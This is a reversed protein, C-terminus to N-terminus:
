ARSGSTSSRAPPRSCTAPYFTRLDATEDPWGLTAFPWLASSFWTDLVDPDREAPPHRVRPLARADDGAVIVHDNECYWVPMQHGWWLQRSVCWPRIQEMWGFFIREAGKPHFRVRGERVAAIAPAALEDMRCFWQLSVLPEVRVGSRQGHGVSHVYPAGLPHARARAPGRAGAGVGRRGDLGAYREGAHETMRADFGIVQIEALHHRRGIEFDNPDHAPTVKLAGTGVTPDVYEDAIIPVEREVLPVIARRGILERYREDSPNVAVASDGLLTVPRVTAVTM